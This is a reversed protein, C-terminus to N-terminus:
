SPRRPRTQARTTLAGDLSMVGGRIRALDAAFLNTDRLDARTLNAKQMVANM